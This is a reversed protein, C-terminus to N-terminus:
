LGAVTVGEVNENWTIREEWVAKKSESRRDFILLYAPITKDFRDRYRLTQEIAEDLLSRYSDYDHLIKIEIVCRYDEYEVFLDMRGRGAGVERDIRGGGNLIRQ